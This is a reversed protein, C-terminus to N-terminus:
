RYMSFSVNKKKASFLGVIFLAIEIKVRFFRVFLVLQMTSFTDNKQKEVCIYKVREHPASDM